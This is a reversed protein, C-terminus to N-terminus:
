HIILDVMTAYIYAFSISEYSVLTYHIDGTIFVASKFTYNM